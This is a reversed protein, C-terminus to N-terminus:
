QQLNSYRYETITCTATIYDVCVSPLSPSDCMPCVTCAYESLLMSKLTKDAKRYLIIILVIIRDIQTCRNIYNNDHVHVHIYSKDLPLNCYM